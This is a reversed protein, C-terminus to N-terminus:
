SGRRHRGSLHARGALPGPHGARLPPPQRQRQRGAAQQRPGMRPQDQGRRAHCRVPRRHHEDLDLGRQPGPSGDVRFCVEANGTAEFILDPKGVQKALDAMSTQKTGVYTAGYAEVIESKLHPGPRTALTYVELGRLKLMMTALLGIQGAGLVFARKPEWVQLRQQALYAQDIAKACVSAPESLVGLHRLNQPVKVMYEADDVFFETMYGHCLNIGREYYVEESTIDNRGILDFISGGPRRVTCTVYDGPKLEHVKDGVEVVQGFSEHGIVLFDGGPPANGYLAENIERDTADVGVQLARVRVARGEPVLCVHPHPQDTLRPEPIEREHVSNKQGPLVAVAKM